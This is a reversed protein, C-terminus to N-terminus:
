GRQSESTFGSGDGPIPLQLQNSTVAYDGTASGSRLGAIARHLATLLLKAQRRNLLGQAIGQVLRSLGVQIALAEGMLGCRRWSANERGPDSLRGPAQRSTASHTQAKPTPWPLRPGWGAGGKGNNPHLNVSPVTRHTSAHFYCYHQGRLAPSGCRGGGGLKLHECLAIDM